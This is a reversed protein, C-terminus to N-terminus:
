SKPKDGEIETTQDKAGIRRARMFDRVPEVHKILIILFMVAVLVRLSGTAGGAPAIRELLWSPVALVGLILAVTAFANGVNVNRTLLFSIGWLLMWVPVVPWALVIAVGSATALGRGGKFSLWISFNHGFVAAVGAVATDIVSGNFLCRAVLVSAIGKLLDLALVAVGVLRSRTVLYSNLAGVNGSGTQRIDMRSKWRVLIYASPISGLLYGLAAALLFDLTM